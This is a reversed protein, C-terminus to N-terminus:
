VFIKFENLEYQLTERNYKPFHLIIFLYNQYSDIRARQNEELCAEIDLEHFDYKKLMSFIEDKSLNM